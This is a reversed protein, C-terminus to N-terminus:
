IEVQVGLEMVRDPPIGFYTVAPPANRSMYAFLGKRWSMM